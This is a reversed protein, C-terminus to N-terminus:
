PSPTTTTATTTLTTRTPIGVPPRPAVTTAGQRSHFNVPAFVCSSAGPKCNMQSSITSGSTSTIQVSAPHDINPWWVFYWGNQITADVTEGNAFVFTVAAIKSGALGVLNTEVGQDIM